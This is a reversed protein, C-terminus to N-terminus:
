RLTIVGIGSSIQLALTKLMQAAYSLMGTSYLHVMDLPPSQDLPRGVGNLQEYIM